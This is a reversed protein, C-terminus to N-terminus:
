SIEEDRQHSIKLPQLPFRYNSVTHLLVHVFWDKRALFLLITSSQHIISPPSDALAPCKVRELKPLGLGKNSVQAVSSQHHKCPLLIQKCAPIKTQMHAVVHKLLSHLQGIGVSRRPESHVKKNM